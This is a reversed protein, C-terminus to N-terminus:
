IQIQLPQVQPYTPLDYSKDLMDAPEEHFGEFHVNAPTEYGLSQHPRQYNYFKMYEAIAQRTETVSALDIRYIKEKKLSRWFHEIFVNDLVRGKGDMSIAIGNTQLVEIFSACRSSHILTM